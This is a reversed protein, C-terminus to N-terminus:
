NLPSFHQEQFDTTIDNLGDIYGQLVTRMEAKDKAGDSMFILEQKGDVTVGLIVVPIANLTNLMRGYRQM